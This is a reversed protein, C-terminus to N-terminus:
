DRTAKPWLPDLHLVEGKAQQRERGVRFRHTGSAGLPVAGPLPLGTPDPAPWGHTTSASAPCRLRPPRRTLSGQPDAHGAHGPRTRSKQDNRSPRPTNYAVEGLADLLTQ